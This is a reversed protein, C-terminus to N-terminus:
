WVRLSSAPGRGRRASSSVVFAGLEHARGNVVVDVRHRGPYHRRTTLDALSLTKRCSVVGGPPLEAIKLKFVRVATRGRARVFHVRLDIVMPQARRGLNRVDCGITVRGGMSTQRPSIRPNEIAVRAGGGFGLMKLAEGNGQKVQSRLAHRVLARREEDAGAMWRRATAILIGPHDKGIDNLNNAVSRRVDSSPDDKLLELLELVPRPDAQFARLRGAWPLRPRTGESVLRRVHHSPDRAWQRLRALTREPYRELFPRISFEATFRQTLEYQAAMSSEFDDLGFASVFCVHPLYVFSAMGGDGESRAPRASASRVLIDVAQPYAPPLHRRLVHALHRGRDMLELADFGELADALFAKSPFQPWVRGIMAAITKPVRPGFHNKLPEAV